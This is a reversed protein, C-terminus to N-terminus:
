APPHLTAVALGHLTSIAVLADGTWVLQTATPRVGRAEALPSWRRTAPDWAWLRGGCASTVCFTAPDFSRVVLAAGTSVAAGVFNPSTSPPPIATSRPAAGDNPSWAGDSANGTLCSMFATCFTGPPIAVGHDLAVPASASRPSALETWSRDGPRWIAVRHGLSAGNPPILRTWDIRATVRGSAFVASIANITEGALQPSPVSRIAWRSTGRDYSEILLQPGQLPVNNADATCWRSAFGFLVAAHGNWVPQADTGDGSSIPCMSPPALVPTWRHTAPDFAAGDAYVGNSTPSATVTHASWVLVERGTWVAADIRDKLQPSPLRTWTGVSPDYSWTARVTRAPKPAPGFAVREIASVLVERGDWVVLDPYQITPPPTAQSWVWTRLQAATASAVNPLVEARDPAPRTTVSVWATTRPANRHTVVLPVM